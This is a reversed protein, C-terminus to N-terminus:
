AWERLAPLIKKVRREYLLGFAVMGVGFGLLLGFTPLRDHLKAFYQLWLNLLLAVAASAVLLARRQQVGLGIVVAGGGLILIPYLWDTLRTLSLVTLTGFYLLIGAGELLRYPGRSAARPAFVFALGVFVASAGVVSALYAFRTEHVRGFTSVADALMAMGDHGACKVLCLIGPAFAAPVLAPLLALVQRTSSQATAPSLFAVAITAFGAGMALQLHAVDEHHVFAVITPVVAVLAGATLAAILRYAAPGGLALGAGIVTLAFPWAVGFVHTPERGLVVLGAAASSWLWLGAGVAAPAGLELGGRLHLGAALGLFAVTVAGTYLAPGLLTGQSLHDGLAIAALSAYVAGLTALAGSRNGGALLCTAAAIAGGAAAWPGPRNELDEGALLNWAAFWALASAAGLIALADLRRADPEKRLLLAQGWTALGLVAALTLVGRGTYSLAVWLCAVAIVAHVGAVIGLGASRLRAALVGLLAASSGAALAWSMTDGARGFVDLGQAIVGIVLLGGLQVLVMGHDERGSNRLSLGAAMLGGAASALFLTRGGPGITSWLCACAVLAGLGALVWLAASRRQKALVGTTAAVAAAVVTWAGASDILGFMTLVYAADAWLMQTAIAILALGGRPSGHREAFTGGAFAGATLLALLAFLGPGGFALALGIAGVLVFIGGVGLVLVLIASVQPGEEKAPAAPAPKTLRGSPVDATPEVLEFEVPAPEEPAVARALASALVSLEPRMGPGAALARGLLTRLQVSRAVAPVVVQGLPPEGTLAQYALAGLAYTDAAPTVPRGRVVEPAAFAADAPDARGPGLRARLLAGADVPRAPTVLVPGQAGVRQTGPRLDGHVRGAAHLGAVAEAAAAVGALTVTTAAAPLEHHRVVGREVDLDWPAVAARGPAGPAPPLADGPRVAAALAASLAPDLREVWADGERSLTGGFPGIAAAPEPAGPPSAGIPSILDSTDDSM